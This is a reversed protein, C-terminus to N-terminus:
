GGRRYNAITVATAFRRYCQTQIYRAAASNPSRAARRAKRDFLDAEARIAGETPAVGVREALSRLEDVRAQILEKSCAGVDHAAMIADWLEQYTDAIDDLVEPGLNPPFAQLNLEPSM